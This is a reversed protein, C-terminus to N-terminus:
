DRPRRTDNSSARAKMQAIEARLQELQESKQADAKKLEALAGLFEKMAGQLARIDVQDKISM